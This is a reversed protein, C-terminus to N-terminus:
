ASSPMRSRTRDRPSPSTYLLCSKYGIIFKFASIISIPNTSNGFNSTIIYILSSCFLWPIIISKLKRLVLEKLTWKKISDLYFYGSLFLFLPVGILQIISMIQHSMKDFLYVNDNLVNTHAIIVFIIAWGKIINFFTRQEKKNIM